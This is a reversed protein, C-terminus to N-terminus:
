RLAMRFAVNVRKLVVIGVYRCLDLKVYLNAPHADQRQWLDDFAGLQDCSPDEIRIQHRVFSEQAAPSSSQRIL